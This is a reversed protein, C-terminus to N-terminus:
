KKRVMSPYWGRRAETAYVTVFADPDEAEITQIVRPVHQRPVVTSVVDVPGELGEGDLETVGLGMRRLADSVAGDRGRCFAQVTATGVPVKGELWMGVWTGVGFGGAYGVLHLPSTLNLITSGAATIWILIEVFGLISALLRAGRTVYVLRLTGLSVDVVRMSFIVGPGLPGALLEMM